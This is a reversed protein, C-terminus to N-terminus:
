LIDDCRLPKNDILGYIIRRDCPYVSVFVLVIIVNINIHYIFTADYHLLM